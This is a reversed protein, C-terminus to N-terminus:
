FIIDLWKPRPDELFKKISLRLIDEVFWVNDLALDYRKGHLIKSRLDYSHKTETFLRQREKKDDSLLVAIRHAIRYSLEAADGNQLYLAELGIMYDIIRDELKVKEYGDAFRGLAIGLPTHSEKKEWAINAFEEHFHKFAPLVSNGFFYLRENNRRMGVQSFVTGFRTAKRVSFIIRICGEKFLRLALILKEMEQHVVNHAKIVAEESDEVEYHYDIWHMDEGLLIAWEFTETISSDGHRPSLLFDELRKKPIKRIKLTRNGCSLDLEDTDSSFRDLLAFYQFLM